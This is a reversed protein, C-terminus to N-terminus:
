IAQDLEISTNYLQGGVARWTPMKEMYGYMTLKWEGDTMAAGDRDVIVWLPKQKGHRLFMTDLDEQETKTCFEITGVLRKVYPYSDIFRQRFDNFAVKSNDDNRYRFSSVSFSNLPLNLRKGIFLNGLECFSGSGTLTLEVYRHNVETIYEIGIGYESSLTIPIPTSLTFDSTVSTKISAATIGLTETPDGAIAVTDIDRTQGLDFEIVCTNGTSRFKISPSDNQLNSLPFQADETGTTLTLAAGDVLNESLFNIGSM